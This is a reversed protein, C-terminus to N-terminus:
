VEMVSKIDDSKFGKNILYSYIHNRLDYSDYKKSYKTKAKNYEKKLLELENSNKLNLNEIAEKAADYSYGANVIKTLISQKTANLSKNKVSNSYKIALKNAKVYEEESNNIVYKEILEKGIGEKTLKIKIQKTSLLQKNLYSTRNLCYKDDDLLGYTKLKSIIVDTEEINLEKKIKLYDKIQKESFDKTSLKRLAGRYALHLREDNKLLEYLKDDLGKLSSIGYKFYSDVSIVIREKNDLYIVVGDEKEKIKSITYKIDKIVQKDTKLFDEVNM